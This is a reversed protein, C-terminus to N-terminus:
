PAVITFAQDSVDWNGTTNKTTYKGNPGTGSGIFMSGGETESWIFIKYIGPQVDKCWQDPDLNPHYNCVKLGDWTTSSDPLYYGQGERTNIFGIISGTTGNKQPGSYPPNNDLWGITYNTNADPTALGVAVVRYGGKWKITNAIGQLFQEGGNPSVVVVTVPSTTTTDRPGRAGTFMTNKFVIIIVVIVSILLITLHPAFKKIKKPKSVIEILCVSVYKDLPSLQTRRGLQYLM